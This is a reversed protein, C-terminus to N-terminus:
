GQKDKHAALLRVFSSTPANLQYLFRSMPAQFLGLLKSRLVEKSPLTALYKIKAEDLKAGDMVGVKLQFKEVDKTFDALAKASAGVDGYAFVVANTGVLADNLV